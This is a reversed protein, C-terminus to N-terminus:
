PIEELSGNSSKRHARAPLNSAAEKLLLEQNLAAYTERALESVYYQMALPLMGLEMYLGRIPSLQGGNIKDGMNNEYILVASCAAVMAGYLAIRHIVSQLGVRLRLTGPISSSNGPNRTWQVQSWPGIDKGSHVRGVQRVTDIPQHM